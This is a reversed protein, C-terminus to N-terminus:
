PLSYLVTLYHPLCSPLFPPHILSRRALPASDSHLLTKLASQYYSSLLFVVLLTINVHPNHLSTLLGCVAIFWSDRLRFPALSTM